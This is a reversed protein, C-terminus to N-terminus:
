TQTLGLNRRGNAHTWGRHSCIRGHAVAVMHTNDLGRERCFAALNTIPGAPKGDPDIFGEYTKVYERQRRCNRHTWGKYSKLKTNGRALRIMSSHDLGHQHCFAHLNTITVENGCPD